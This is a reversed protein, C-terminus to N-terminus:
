ANLSVVARTTRARVHAGFKQFIAALLLCWTRSVVYDHHVLNGVDAAGRLSPRCPFSFPEQMCRM